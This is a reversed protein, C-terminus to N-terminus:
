LAKNRCDCITSFGQACAGFAGNCRVRKWLGTRRKRPTKTEKTNEEQSNGQDKRTNGAQKVPNKLNEKPSFKEFEKTNKLNEKTNEFLGLFLLVPFHM